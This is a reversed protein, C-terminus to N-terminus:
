WGEHTVPVMKDDRREMITTGYSEKELFAEVLLKALGHIDSAVRIGHDKIVPSEECRLVYGNHGQEITFRKM